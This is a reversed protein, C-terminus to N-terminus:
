GESIQAESIQAEAAESLSIDDVSALVASACSLAATAEVKNMGSARILEMVQEALILARDRPYAM